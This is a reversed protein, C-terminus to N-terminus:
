SAPARLALAEDAVRAALEPVAAQIRASLGGGMAFSQGEIGYVILVPPLQNLARALEVADFLGFAHTSPGFMRGPLPRHSVEFRRISGPEAGSQLADVLIVAGAQRWADVLSAADGDQEIVDVAPIARARVLRAVARGAGDDGRLPNGVGVVLVAPGSM